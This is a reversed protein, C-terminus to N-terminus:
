FCPKIFDRPWAEDTAQSLFFFIELFFNLPRLSGLDELQRRRDYFQNRICLLDNRARQKFLTEVIRITERPRVTTKQRIFDGISQIKDQRVLDLKTLQFTKADAGNGLKVQIPLTLEPLMERAYLTKGEDYRFLSLGVYQRDSREALLFSLSV